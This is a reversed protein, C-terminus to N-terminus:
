PATVLFKGWSGTVTQYNVYLGCRTVQLGTAMGTYQIIQTGNAFVTVTPGSLIVKFACPVGPTVVNPASARVGSSQDVTELLVVSGDAYTEIAWFNHNDALRFCLGNAKQQTTGQVIVCTITVDAKGADAYIPLASPDVCVAQGNEVLWSGPNYSWPQGFQMPGLRSGNAGTFDDRLLVVPPPPAIGLAVALAQLDAPSLILSPSLALPQASVSM